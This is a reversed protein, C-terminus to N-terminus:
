ECVVTRCDELCSDLYARVAEDAVGEVCGCVEVGAKEVAEKAGDCIRGCILVDIDHQMVFAVVMERGNGRSECLETGTIAGEEVEYVKFQETDGVNSFIKGDEYSVAILM